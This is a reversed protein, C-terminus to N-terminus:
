RRAMHETQRPQTSRCDLNTASDPMNASGCWWHRLLSSAPPSTPRYPRRHHWASNVSRSTGWTPPEDDDGPGLRPDFRDILAAIAM